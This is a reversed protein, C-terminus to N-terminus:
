TRKSSPCLETVLGPRARLIPFWFRLWRLCSGPSAPSNGAIMVAALRCISGRGAIGLSPFSAGSFCFTARNPVGLLLMTAPSESHDLETLQASLVTAKVWGAPVSVLVVRSTMGSQRLDEWWEVAGHGVGLASGVAHLCRSVVLMAAFCLAALAAQEELRSDQDAM